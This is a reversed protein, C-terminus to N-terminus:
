VLGEVSGARARGLAAPRGPAPGGPGGAEGGGGDEGEGLLAPLGRRKPRATPVGLRLDHESQAGEPRPLRPRHGAGALGSGEWGASLWWGGRGAPGTAPRQRRLPRGGTPDAPPRNGLSKPHKWCSTPRQACTRRDEGWSVGLVPGRGAGRATPGHLPTGPGQGELACGRGTGRSHRFPWCAPCGGPVDRAHLGPPSPPQPSSPSPCAMGGAGWTAAAM